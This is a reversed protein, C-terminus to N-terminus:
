TLHGSRTSFVRCITSQDGPFYPPYTRWDGPIHTLLKDRGIQAEVPCFTSLEFTQAPSSLQAHQAALRRNCISSAITIQLILTMDERLSLRRDKIRSALYTWRDPLEGTKAFTARWANFVPWKFPIDPEMLPYLAAREFRPDGERYGKLWLPLLTEVVDLAVTTQEFVHFFCAVAESEPFTDPM